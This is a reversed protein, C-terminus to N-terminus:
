QAINELKVNAFAVRSMSALLGVQGGSARELPLNEALTAGDLSITYTAGVVHVALTHWKGDGGNAVPAGGKFQFVGGDDYHGWQLYSGKGTYSLMQAGKKSDRNPANFILGAGMEGELFKVDAQLLYDGAIPQNLLTILDYKGLDSQAYGQEGFSWEGALPTWQSLSAQSDAFDLALKVPGAPAPAAAPAQPAAPAAVATPAAPAADATPQAFQPAAPAPQATPTAPAAASAAPAPLAASLQASAEDFGKGDLWLTYKAPDAADGARTTIVLQHYVTDTYDYFDVSMAIREDPPVANLQPGFTQMLYIAWDRTGLYSPKDALANPGRIMDLTLVAGMGPIYAGSAHEAESDILSPMIQMIQQQAPHSASPAEARAVQWMLLLVMLTMTGFLLSRWRRRFVSSSPRVVSPPASQAEKTKPGQDKTQGNLWWDWVLLAAFLGGMLFVQVLVIQLLTDHFFWLGAVQAVGAAVALGSGSGASASLRYNVVVNALAYLGTALAYLWLLPAIPLYAAGFLMRVMLEPILLTAAFVFASVAAVLGLATWLLHRHPEGRQQKQAVIPFMMAVVSATAFFVIRGILSLAAYHGAPEAAFFHKVIIIDSNNILVQGILAAIVPGALALVKRREPADLGAAPRSKAAPRALRQGVLWTAVLSLTLGAVAGYTAWGLAVLSM